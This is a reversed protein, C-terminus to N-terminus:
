ATTSYKIFFRHPQCMGGLLMRVKPDQALALATEGKMTELNKDAGHQLLFAVMSAHGRKSAWHLATRCVNFSLKHAYGFYLLM